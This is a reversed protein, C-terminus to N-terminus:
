GAAVDGAQLQTQFLDVVVRDPAGRSNQLRYGLIAIDREDHVVAGIEGGLEIAVPHM